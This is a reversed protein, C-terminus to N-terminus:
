VKPELVNFAASHSFHLKVRHIEGSIGQGIRKSELFPLITREHLRRHGARRRFVPATFEWQNEFFDTADTKPLIRDLDAKSYPLRSDIAATQLQDNEVFSVILEPRTIKILIAFTRQGGLRILKISELERHLQAKCTTLALRIEEYKLIENLSGAPVFSSRSEASHSDKSECRLSRIVERLKDM